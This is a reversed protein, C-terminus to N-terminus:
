SLYWLRCSLPLWFMSDPVQLQKPMHNSVIQHPVFQTRKRKDRYVPPLCPHNQQFNLGRIAIQWKWVVSGIYDAIAVTLAYRHAKVDEKTCVHHALFIEYYTWDCIIMLFRVAGFYGWVSGRYGGRRLNRFSSFRCRVVGYFYSLALNRMWGFRPILSYSDGESDSM